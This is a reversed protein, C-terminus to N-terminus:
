AFNEMNDFPFNTDFDVNDISLDLDGIPSNTVSTSASIIETLESEPTGVNYGIGFNNVHCPSMSFYNSESTAPSIFTPSLSGLFNNEMMSERFINNEENENGISACPFSFSPFIDERTDLDETKVKLGDAFNLFVEKSPKAKEEHQQQQQCCDKSQKPMDNIRSASAM